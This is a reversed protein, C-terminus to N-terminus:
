LVALANASGEGRAASVVQATVLLHIRVRVRVLRPAAARVGLHQMREPGAAELAAPSFCIFPLPKTPDICGLLFRPCTGRQEKLGRLVWSTRFPFPVHPSNERLLTPRLPLLGSHLTTSSISLM